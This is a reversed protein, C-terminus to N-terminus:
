LYNMIYVLLFISNRADLKMKLRKEIAARRDPDVALAQTRSAIREMDVDEVVSAGDKTNIAMDEKTSETGM